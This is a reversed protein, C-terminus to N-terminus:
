KIKFLTSRSNLTTKRSKLSEKKETGELCRCLDFVPKVSDDIKKLPPAMSAVALCEESCDNSNGVLYSQFQKTKLVTKM